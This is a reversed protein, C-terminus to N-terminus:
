SRELSARLEPVLALLTDRDNLEPNDLVQEHLGRLIRGILPSEPIGLELLDRGNLALSKLPSLEPGKKVEAIAEDFEHLERALVQDDIKCASADAWKLARWLPYLEGTDRLLRRLGGAGASLPRMHTRILVSVDRVVANSFRLRQMIEEAIDAGVIEHRFFHRDGADDVSLTAPKAVDHLLAALRLTLDPASKEVVELTHEFLDAKHFRNQEFGVFTEVEPLVLALLGLQHFLRFGRAPDPSLLTKVLEDRIREVSVQQISSALARAAGFTAEDISFDLQVAFRVLRMTRLPDERFRAQPDGVARLLRSNIDAAGQLPDRLTATAIDFAIANVTFDRYRLDEDISAGVVVGGQPSMEPGRFTTLEVAPMDPDPLATVTQHKLGTPIQRIGARELRAAVEAPVLSTAFDLDQAGAGRLCDRVTGGVLHLQADSGLASSLKVVRPDGLLPRLYREARQQLSQDLGAESM